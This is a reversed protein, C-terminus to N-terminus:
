KDTPTSEAPKSVFVNARAKKLIESKDTPPTPAAEKGGGLMEKLLNKLSGVQVDIRELDSGTPFGNAAAILKDLKVQLASFKTSLLDMKGELLKLDGTTALGMLRGITAASVERGSDKHAEALAAASAKSPANGEVLPQSGTDSDMAKAAEVLSDGSNM